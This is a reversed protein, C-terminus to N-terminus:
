RRVSRSGSNAQASRWAPLEALNAQALRREGREIEHIMATVGAVLPASLGAEAAEAVIPGLQAEVETERRRIALDRWIGSHTKASRRNHAVMESFSREAAAPDAGAAFAGPDFGNFGLPTVHRSAAVAMVERALAVLVPRHVPDALVDAIADDTLATAFLLAGYGLKGWLYGVINDTVIADPEFIRVLRHLDALRATARGDMEGLVVAGRGGYLIRGPELYDAGFNVFAGVVRQMGGLADAIVYENLGNQFSAVYGGDDLHPALQRAAHATHHAKVCLLIRGFRGTVEDPTAAAVRVTFQDLPGEITLGRDRMAAVHDVASDVLLVPEGARALYAGVTGGIAGAGWIVLTESM